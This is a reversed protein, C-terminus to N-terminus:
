KSTYVLSKESKGRVSSFGETRIRNLIEKPKYVSASTKYFKLQPTIYVNKSM